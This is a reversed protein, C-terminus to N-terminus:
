KFFKFRLGGEFRVPERKVWYPNAYPAQGWYEGFLTDAVDFHIPSYGLTFNLELKRSLRIGFRCGIDFTGADGYGNSVEPGVPTTGEYRQLGNQGIADVLSQSKFRVYEDHLGLFPTIGIRSSLRIEQAIGGGLMVIRSNSPYTVGDFIFNPQAFTVGAGGLELYLLTSSEHFYKDSLQIDFRANFGHKGYGAYLSFDSYEYAVPDKKSQPSQADIDSSCIMCIISLVLCKKM